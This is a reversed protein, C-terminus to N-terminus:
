RPQGRQVGSGPGIDACVAQWVCVAQGWRGRKESPRHWAGGPCAAARVLRGREAGRCGAGGSGLGAFWLPRLKGRKRRWRTSLGTELWSLIVLILRM